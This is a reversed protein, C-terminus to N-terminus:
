KRIAVMTNQSMCNKSLGESHTTSVKCLVNKHPAWFVFFCFLKKSPWFPMQCINYVEINFVAPLREEQHLPFSSLQQLVSLVYGWIIRGPTKIGTSSWKKKPHITILAYFAYLGPPAAFGSLPWNSMIIHALIYSFHVHFYRFPVVWQIMAWTPVWLTFSM